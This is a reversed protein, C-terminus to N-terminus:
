VCLAGALARLIAAVQREAALIGHATDIVFHARRVKEHSPMQRALISEFRGLTMGPRALVRSKQVAESAHVVVIVDVERDCGTEFLLPVDLVAIRSNNMRCRTLFDQRGQRVLPHIISELRRMAFDDHLVIEALTARNVVGNQVVGPFDRKILAAAPSQYLRHVAADSDHVPVGAKRFLDATVSKGMGVSGTLGVVLM